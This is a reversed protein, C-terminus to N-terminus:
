KKLKENRKTENRKSENRHTENRKPPKTEPKLVHRNIATRNVNKLAMVGYGLKIGETLKIEEWKETRNLEGFLFHRWAFQKERKQM